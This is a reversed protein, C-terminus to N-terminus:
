VIASSRIWIRGQSIAQVALKYKGSQRQIESVEAATIGAEEELLRLASGREVSGHQYRDGSLLVRANVRKALDFVQRMTKTGVQGAEDILILQGAVERQKRPDSLLM